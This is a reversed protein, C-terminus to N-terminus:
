NVTFQRYVTVQQGNGDIFDVTVYFTGHFENGEFHGFFTNDVIPEWGNDIRWKYNTANYDRPSLEFMGYTSGYNGTITYEEPQIIDLAAPAETEPKQETETAPNNGAFLVQASCCLVVAALGLMAKRVSSLSIIKKM